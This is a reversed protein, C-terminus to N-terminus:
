IGYTIEKQNPKKEMRMSDYSISNDGYTTVFRIYVSLSFSLWVRILSCVKKM